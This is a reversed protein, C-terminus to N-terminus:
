TTSNTILGMDALAILLNTLAVNGGKSGTITQKAVPTTGYFGFDGMFEVGASSVKLNVSGSTIIVGSEGVTIKVTGDLTRLEANTTNYNSLALPQSFPGLIAFADSLDHRRKTLQVNGTGGNQWWADICYDAFVVICEDGATVPMTLALQGAHPIIIPVDLLLPLEKDQQVLSGSVNVNVKEQVAVLVQMTQATPNFSQIIGVKCVHFKAQAQKWFQSFQDSNLGLREPISLNNIPSSM